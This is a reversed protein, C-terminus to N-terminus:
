RISIRSFGYADIYCLSINQVEVKSQKSKENFFPSFENVLMAVKDAFM